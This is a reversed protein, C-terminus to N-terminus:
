QFLEIIETFSKYGAEPRNEFAFAAWLEIEDKNVENAEIGLIEAVPLIAKVMGSSDAGDEGDYEGVKGANNVARLYGKYENVAATLAPDIDDFDDFDSNRKHIFLKAVEVKQVDTLAGYFTNGLLELKESMNGEGDIKNVDFVYKSQVDELLAKIKGEENELFEKVVEELSHYAEHMETIVQLDDATVDETELALLDAYESKFEEAANINNVITQIEQIADEYNGEEGVDIDGFNINKVGDEEAWYADKNADIVGEIGLAKLAVLLEDANQADIVKDIAERAATENVREIIADIDKRQNKDKVDAERIKERYQALLSDKVQEIDFEDEFKRWDGPVDAKEYKEVLATELDDLAALASKLSNNTTANNVRILADLVDLHDNAYEVKTIDAEKDVSLYANALERAAAVDSAKLSQFAKDYAEAVKEENVEDIKAQIDGYSVDDELEQLSDAYKVIWDANVYEFYTSLARLLQIQNQAEKVAEVAEKKTADGDQTENVEDIVAQIDALTEADADQIAKLYEQIYDENVNLIGAAELAELLAVENKNEVAALIAEFQAIADFDYEVGNVTWIGTFLEEDIEEVFEFTATTDGESIDIPRVDYVNGEADKVVVTADFVDEEVAEFVVEVETSTIASVSEIKLVPVQADDVIQQLRDQLEQSVVLSGGVITVSTAPNNALVEQVFEVIADMNDASTTYLIPNGLVSAGVADALGDYGNVVTLGSIDDFQSEAFAVSTAVRNTNEGGYERSVALGASELAEEVSDDVVVPGGVIVADTIQLEDIADMVEAPVVDKKVPLIIGKGLYAAAGAVMADASAEGNVIYATGGKVGAAKALQVATEYRSFGEVRETEIGLNEIATEVEDSVAVPGGAIYAKQPNLQQLAKETNESLVNQQTLLIPAEFEGALVSAALGDAFDPDGNDREGDGRAIVVTDVSGLEDAIAAATAYRDSGIKGEIRHVVNESDNAALALGNLLLSFGLVVALVLLVRKGFMKM